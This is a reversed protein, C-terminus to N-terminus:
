LVLYKTNLFLSKNFSQFFNNQRKTRIEEANVTIPNANVIIPIPEIRAKKPIIPSNIDIGMPM